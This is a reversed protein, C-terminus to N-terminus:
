DCCHSCERASTEVVCMLGATLVDRLKHRRLVDSIASLNKSESSAPRAENPEAVHREAFSDLSYASAVGHVNAIMM